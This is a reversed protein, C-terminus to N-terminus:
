VQITILRRKTPKKLLVPEQDYKNIPSFTEKPTLAYKKLENLEKDVKLARQEDTKLFPELVDETVWRKEDNAFKVQYTQHTPNHDVITAARMTSPSYPCLVSQGISYIKQVLKPETKKGRIYDTWLQNAKGYEKFACFDAIDGWFNLGEKSSSWDFGETIIETLTKRDKVDNKIRQVIVSWLERFLKDKEALVEDSFRPDKQKSTPKTGDFEYFESELMTFNFGHKSSVEITYCNKDEQFGNYHNIKGQYGGHDDGGRSYKGGCEQFSKYTVIDGVKFKREPKSDPKSSNKPVLKDLKYDNKNFYWGEYYFSEDSMIKSSPITVTTGLYRNMAKGHEWASPVGRAANWRGDEKFEEETLFTLTVTSEEPEALKIQDQIYFWGNYNSLTDHLNNGTEDTPELCEVGVLQGNIKRVICRKGGFQYGRDPIVIDGIKFKNEGM